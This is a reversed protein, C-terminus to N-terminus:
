NNFKTLMYVQLKLDKHLSMNRMKIHKMLRLSFTIGVSTRVLKKSNMMMKKMITQKGLNWSKWWDSYSSNMTLSCLWNKLLDMILWLKLREFTRTRIWLKWEISWLRLRINSTISRTPYNRISRYFWTFSSWWSLDQSPSLMLFLLDLQSKLNEKM